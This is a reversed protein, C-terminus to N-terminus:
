RKGAKQRPSSAPEAQDYLAAARRHEDAVRAALTAPGRVTALPGWGMLWPVVETTNVVDMELRVSGDRRRSLKQTPHWSRAEILHRAGPAFDVVVHAPEGGSFIGFVGDFYQEVKFDVPVEFHAKRDREASAFREVAYVRVPQHVLPQNQLPAAGLSQADLAALAASAPRLASALVYLGQKYLVMAYPELLADFAHGDVNTYSCAVRHHHLVGTLLEDIIDGHEAYNKAGCSPLYLFRDGMGEMAKGDGPPLSAVVEGYIARIDEQFPTDALVDFVRRAALLTYRRRLSLRFTGGRGEELAVRTRRDDLTWQLNYGAQEVATLDRRVQRESVELESALDSLLAGQTRARLEDLLKLLRVAQSYTGLTRGKKIAPPKKKMPGLTARTQPPALEAPLIPVYETM